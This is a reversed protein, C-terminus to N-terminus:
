ASAAVYDLNERALNSAHALSYGQDSQGYQWQLAGQGQPQQRQQQAILVQCFAPMLLMLFWVTKLFTPKVAGAICTNEIRLKM